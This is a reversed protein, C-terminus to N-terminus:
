GIEKIKWDFTDDDIEKRYFYSGDSRTIKDFKWEEYGAKLFAKHSAINDKYHKAMIYKYPTKRKADWEARKLLTSGIGQGQYDKKVVFSVEIVMDLSSQEYSSCLGIVEKDNVCVIAYIIDEYFEKDNKYHQLDLSWSKREEDLSDLFEKFQKYTVERLPVIEATAEMKGKFKM